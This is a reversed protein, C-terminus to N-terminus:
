YTVRFDKFEGSFEEFAIEVNAVRAGSPGEKSFDVMEQVASEEGEFVAEVRGDDLNRIWGKVDRSQAEQKTRQRFFVGQVWGTIFVHARVTTMYEVLPLLHM